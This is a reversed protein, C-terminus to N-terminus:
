QGAIYAEYEIATMLRGMQLPDEPTMKFLWGGGEPDDNVTSTEELVAANVSIVIGGVPAYIENAAKISEVTAAVEGAHLMKNQAPMEVFVVDGMEKAAHRTIGVVAVDDEMRVWEHDRSYRTENRTTM